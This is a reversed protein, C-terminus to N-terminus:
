LPFFLNEEKKVKGEEILRKAILGLRKRDVGLPEEMDGVKVGEPHRNILELVRGELDVEVEEFAKEAPKVKTEAEAKPTAAMGKRRQALYESMDEWANAAENLDSSYEGLLKKTESVIGAAYKSLDNKLKKSMDAHSDSFEQLKNSVYAEIGKIDKQIDGMMVKFEKLRDTEGKELGEKLNNAMEKHAKHIGKIMNGVNKTLDAVFDALGKAQEGSMQEHNRRFEKLMGEVEKGTKEREQTFGKLTKRTDTVLDGLAKLRVDYSTVINETIEKMSDAIGM